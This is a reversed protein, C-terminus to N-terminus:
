RKLSAWRYVTDPQDTRYLKAQLNGTTPIDQLTEWRNGPELRISPWEKVVQGNDTELRLTYNIPTAETSIIGLKVSSKGAEDPMMWFQTFRSHQDEVGGRAILLSAAVLVGAFGLMAGQRLNFGPNFSVPALTSHGNVRRYLALGCGILTVAALVIAWSGPQLGWTTLNLALGGLAVTAISLGIILVLREAAGLTEGAFAAVLAYGPLIIVLPLGIIFRILGNDLNTLALAVGVLALGAVLALDLNKIKVNNKAFM